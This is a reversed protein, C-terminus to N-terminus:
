DRALAYIRHKRDSSTFVIKARDGYSAVVEELMKLTAQGEAYGDLPDIILYDARLAELVAKIEPASGVSPKAEGYPYFYTASRHLAPRIARRGTYLFYMPDYATALLVDSQTNARVWAFSEEFGRWGYAVRSGYLARTTQEDRILFYSSLWVGDLLFLLLVPAWVLKAALSAISEEGSRSQIWHEVAGMGRFLFLVLLPVLPAVYRGPHFPWILLLALSVLFFTWAFLEDRRASVMAGILTLGVIFPALWPMLPLLFLFDLSGLLYRANGAVVTWEGTLWAGIAASKAGSFDYASYYAFLPNASHEGHYYVWLFWPLIFLAVGGCYCRAGRWGRGIFSVVAGALVLPVAALRTLCALGSLAALFLIKATSASAGASGDFLTLAGLALVVYLLDSVTYDTFTFIIPNACVLVAFCLAAFKAGPFRRRYFDVSLVFIVALLACNLAKLVVINQPFNPAVAWLWSLLYSYLFPYKTQPPASPLSIIRYGDGQYLAKAVVSYVADDHFLGLTQKNAGWLAAVAFLFGLGATLVAFRGVRM